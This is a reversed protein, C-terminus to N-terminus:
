QSSDAVFTGAVLLPRSCDPMAGNAGDRAQLVDGAQVRPLSQGNEPRLHFEAARGQDHMLITSVALPMTIDRQMQVLCFSVASGMPLNIDNLQDDLRLRNPGGAFGGTVEVEVGNTAAQGRAGLSIEGSMAPMTPSNRMPSPMPTPTPNAPSGPMPSMSPAPGSGANSVRMPSGCGMMFLALAYLLLPQIFCRRPV